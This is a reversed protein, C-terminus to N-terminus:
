EYQNEVPIRTYNDQIDQEMDEIKEELRNIEHILDELMAEVEGADVLRLDDDGLKYTNYETQTKEEVNLILNTELKMM